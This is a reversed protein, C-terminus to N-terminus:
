VLAYILLIYLIISIVAGSATGITNVLDNTTKQGRSFPLSKNAYQYIAGLYSDITCGAVGGALVAIMFINLYNIHSFMMMATIVVAGLMAAMSGPISIGGDTGPQVSNFTTILWTKSRSVRTGTETAWTDATAAALAGFAGVLFLDAVFIFHLLIFFAFWFGNSWVQIANRREKRRDTPRIGTISSMLVTVLYSGIFFVVLTIATHWGGLGLTVLGIVAASGAGDYSLLRLLFSMYSFLASLVIAILILFRDSEGAIAVFVVLVAVIFFINLKRDIM